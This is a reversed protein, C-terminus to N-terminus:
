VFPSLARVQDLALRSVNKMAEVWMDHDYKIIAKVQDVGEALGLDVPIGYAYRKVNFWGPPAVPEAHWSVHVRYAGGAGIAQRSPDDM